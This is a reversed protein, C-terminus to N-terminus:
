RAASGSKSAAPPSRCDGDEAHGMTTLPILAAVPALVALAIAGATKIAILGKDVSVEPSSFPGTVYLPGTFSILRLSKSVPNLTLDLQERALDIRGKVTLVARDTDIVVSRTQMVGGAVSFDGVACRLRVEKDGFIRTLIVKGLNLGIEDLLLKSITGSSISTRIEGNSSGLLLAVSDGTGSLIADGNIAGLSAHMAPIAPFLDKLKLGRATAKMEAKVPAARGDLRISSNLTGGAVGFNLPQLALVGDNIKVHTVLNEIPLAKERVIRRGTFKVDVDVSRWRDTKFREVPLIKGAPQADAVGREPVM